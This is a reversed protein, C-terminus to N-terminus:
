THAMSSGGSNSDSRRTQAHQRALLHMLAKTLGIGLMSRLMLWM